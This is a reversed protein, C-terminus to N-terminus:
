IWGALPALATFVCVLSSMRKLEPRLSPSPVWLPVHRDLVAANRVRCGTPVPLDELPVQHNIGVPTLLHPFQATWECPDSSLEDSEIDSAQESTNAPQASEAADAQLGQAPSAAPEQEM